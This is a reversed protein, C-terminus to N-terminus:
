SRHSDRLVIECGMKIEKRIGGESEILDALMSAAEMGSTKYFFHVTTLKPEVIKGLSGDGIGAVQVDQPIKIGMEKLYTMAGVAMTDTACLLSDISSERDFLEKAMEYGSDMTFDGQKIREPPVTLKNKHLVAEFGKRRQNGVAEDKETVGIYAFNEGKEALKETVAVAAQYDDQYICPYGELHQGLIVIPVKYEKLMQKHKKTFITAIFVVGDVQNDKFLSLYKLEEEIDNNTNALILQYGRKTLIDSIGAVERSITDSNIKPLIVGVLRTKKTRLMQAQASPQYGTEQIVQYIRAKKEESVYGNNLYRSVTARSVGALKAIENINM